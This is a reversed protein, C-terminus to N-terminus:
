SIIDKHLDKYRNLSAQMIYAVKMDHEYRENNYNPDNRKIRAMRHRSWEDIQYQLAKLNVNRPMYIKDSTISVGWNRYDPDASTFGYKRDEELNDVIRIADGKMARFVDEQNKSITLQRNINYAKPLSSFEDAPSKTAIVTKGVGGM